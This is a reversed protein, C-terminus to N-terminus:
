IQHGFQPAPMDTFKRAMMVTGLTVSLEVVAPVVLMLDVVSELEFVVSEGVDMAADELERMAAVRVV